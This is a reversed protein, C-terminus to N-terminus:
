AIHRKFVKNTNAPLWKGGSRSRLGMENLHLAMATFLGRRNGFVKSFEVACRIVMQEEEVEIFETQDENHKFGFPAKGLKHTKAKLKLAQKIKLNQSTRRWESIGVMLHRLLKGEPTDDNNGVVTIIKGGKKEVETQIVAMLMADRAVRSLDYSLLVDNRKMVSLASMLGERKSLPASGSVGNDMFSMVEVDSGYNAEIFKHMEVFQSAMGLGSEAQGKSSVRGLALVKM